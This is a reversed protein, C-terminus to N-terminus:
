KKGCRMNILQTAEYNEKDKSLKLTINLARAQAFTTGQPFPAIKLESIYLGLQAKAPEKVTGNWQVMGTGYFIKNERVEFIYCYDDQMDYLLAIKVISFEESSNVIRKNNETRIDAVSGSEMVKNSIFNLIYQAQFQLESDNKVRVFRNLNTIFLSMLVTIVISILALCLLLEILTYGKRESYM